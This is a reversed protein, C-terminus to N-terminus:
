RIIEVLKGRDSAGLNKALEKGSSKRYINRLDDLQVQYYREFAKNTQHMTARKIEEPSYYIRLATVSSHKTGGYLGVDNIGLNACARKWTKYLLNIGFKCGLTVGGHGKNHRFFYINPLATPFSQVLDMDEALFPVFKPKKEKPKRIFVGGLTFDFDGEKIATMEKPRISIYTALWKIALWIKINEDKCLNYVEDLIAQQTDKEVIRRWALDFPIDPFDPIRDVIQRKRLWVWFTHLVAKINARTKASINGLILKSQETKAGLFDELQAFQITKINAGQFYEIAKGMGYRVAQYSALDGKRHELYQAALTSFGLPNEKKYDRADFKGTDIEYRLGTLFRQAEEYNSFRRHVGRFSVRFSNPQCQPHQLCFLGRKGDDKFKEGCLPCSGDSYVGGLM